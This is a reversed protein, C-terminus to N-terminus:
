LVQSIRDYKKKKKKEHRTEINQSAFNLGKSSRHDIPIPILDQFAGPPIIPYLISINVQIGYVVLFHNKNSAYWQENVLMDRFIKKGILMRVAEGIIDKRGVFM